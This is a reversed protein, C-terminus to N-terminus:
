RREEYHEIEALALGTSRSPGCNAPSASKTFWGAPSTLWKGTQGVTLLHGDLDPM